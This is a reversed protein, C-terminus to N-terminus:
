RTIMCSADASSFDANACRPKSTISAPTDSNRLDPPAHLHRVSSIHLLMDARALRAQRVHREQFDGLTIYPLRLMNCLAKSYLGPRQVQETSKKDKPFVFVPYDWNFFPTSATKQVTARLM